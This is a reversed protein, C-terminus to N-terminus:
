RHLPGEVGDLVKYDFKFKKSVHKHAEFWYMRDVQNRAEHIAEAPIPVASPTYINAFYSVDAFRLQLDHLDTPEAKAAKDNGKLLNLIPERYFSREAAHLVQAVKDPDTGTDLFRFYNNLIQISYRVNFLEEKFQLPNNCPAFQKRKDFWQHNEPM